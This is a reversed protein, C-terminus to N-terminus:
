PLILVLDQMVQPVFAAYNVTQNERQLVVFRNSLTQEVEGLRRAQGLAESLLKLLREQPPPATSSWASRVFGLHSEESWAPASDPTALPETQPGRKVDLLLVHAGPAKGLLSELTAGSIASRQLNPDNKSTSTLLYVQGQTGRAEEGQYYILVLDNAPERVPALRMSTRIRALQTLIQGPSVYGTLPGYVKGQTFAPTTFSVPGQAKAQLSDLLVQAPPATGQDDVGVALLHLRQKTEPKQCDVLFETRNDAAQELGPIQIEVQNGTTRNLVLRAQFTRELAGAERAAVVTGTQQFGNVWVRVELPEDLRPDAAQSWKLRGELRVHGAALPAPFSLRADPLLVPAVAVAPQDASVVRDLIVRVPPDVLSVHVLQQEEGGANVAVWALENPGRGLAIEPTEVLEYFGATNKQADKFDTRVFVTQGQNRLELRQLPVTSRIRAAATLKEATVASDRRPHLIDVQPPDVAVPLPAAVALLQQPCTGDANTATVALQNAGANLPVNSATLKWRKWGDAADAVPALAAFPVDQGAVRVTQPPLEAPASVFGTVEALRSDPLVRAALESLAPLRRVRIMVPESTWVAGADNALRLQCRNEGPELTIRAKAVKTQPDTEVPTKQVIGQQIVQATWPAADLVGALQWGLELEKPGAGAAIETNSLPVLWSATPLSPQMTVEFRLEAPPGSERQAQLVLTQPGPKLIMRQQFSFTSEKGPVFGALAQPPTGAVFWTASKLKGGATITGGLDIRPSSVIVNDLSWVPQPSGPGADAQIPTITRVRIDPPAVPAEDVAVTRRMVVTEDRATAPIAQANSAALELVHNGPALNLPVNLTLPAAAQWDQQPAGDVLLKISAPEGANPTVTAAFAFAGPKVATVDALPSQIAPPEPAAQLRVEETFEQPRLERTRLTVLLRQEGRPFPGAGLDATWEERETRTCTKALGNVLQWRVEAIQQVPFPDFSIHLKAPGRRLRGSHDERLQQPERGAEELWFGFQPRPLPPAPPPARYGGQEIVAALLGEQYYTERYQEALAFSTPQGPRGTNFHWGILKEAAKSGAEYPGLPSWGVWERSGDAAPRTLFLTAIPKRDDVGQSAVLKVTLPQQNRLIKYAIEDGPKALSIVDYFERVSKLPRTQQGSVVGQIQDGPQLLQQPDGQVITLQPGAQKVLVGQLFGRRGLNQDLDTLSWVALTQDESTSVLLRGDGSFSLGRVRETHGTLDRVREGTAANYLRLIPQGLEHAAVALIPVPRNAVPPLLAWTTLQEGPGLTVRVQNVELFEPNSAAPSRQVVWGALNPRSVSWGTSDKLITRQSFAFIADNAEPAAPDQGAPRAQSALLLGWENAKKVFAVAPTLAGVSRIKQPVANAKGFEARTFLWIEQAPHGAIALRGAVASLGPQAPVDTWLTVPTGVPQGTTFDLFVLRNALKPQLVTYVCAIRDLPGGNQAAVLAIARPIGGEPVTLTRGPRPVQGTALAYFQLGDTSGALLTGAQGALPNGYGLLANNYRGTTQKVLRNAAPQWFWLDTEGWSLAVQLALPERGLRWAAVAPRRAPLPFVLGSLPQATGVAWVRVVGVDTRTSEQWEQAVSLLVPPQGPESPAFKLTLIPGLHGRWLRVEGTRTNFLYILGEDYRMPNSMASAKPLVVGPQRFGAAERVVGKGGVALWTGDASLALANIAGALGPGVPVRYAMKRDLEFRGTKPDLTWVRVVKDWGAAYLTRGSPGFEVATVFSTPGGAELRLIPEEEGPPLDPEQAFTGSACLLILSL